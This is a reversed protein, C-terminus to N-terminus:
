QNQQPNRVFAFLLSCYVPPLPTGDVKNFDRSNKAKAARLRRNQSRAARQGAPNHGPRIVRGSKGILRRTAPSASRDENKMFPAYGGLKRGNSGVRMDPQAHETSFCFALPQTAPGEPESLHSGRSTPEPKRGLRGGFSAGYNGARCRSATTYSQPCRGCVPCWHRAQVGAGLPNFNIFMCPQQRLIYCVRQRVGFHSLVDDPFNATMLPEHKRIPLANGKAGAFVLRHLRHGLM